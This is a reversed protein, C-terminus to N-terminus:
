VIEVKITMTEDKFQLTLEQLDGQAFLTFINAIFTLSRSKGPERDAWSGLPLWEGGNISFVLRKM